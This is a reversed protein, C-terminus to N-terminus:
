SACGAGNPGDKGTMSKAAGAVAGIIYYDMLFVYILLGTLSGSIAGPAARAV